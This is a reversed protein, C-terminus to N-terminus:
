QPYILDYVTQGDEITICYEGVLDFINIKYASEQAQPPSSAKQPSNDSHGSLEVSYVGEGSSLQSLLLKLEFSEAYANKVFSVSDDANLIDYALNMLKEDSIDVLNNTEVSSASRFREGDKQLIRRADKYAQQVPSYKKTLSHLKPVDSHLAKGIDNVQRQLDEPLPNDLRLLAALFSKLTIKDLPNM